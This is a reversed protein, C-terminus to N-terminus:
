FFKQLTILKKKITLREFKKVNLSFFVLFFVNNVYNYIDLKMMSHINVIM